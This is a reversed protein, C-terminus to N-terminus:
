LINIIEHWGCYRRYYGKKEMTHYIIDMFFPMRCSLSDSIFLKIM